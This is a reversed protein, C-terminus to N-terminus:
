PRPTLPGYAREYGDVNTAIAQAIQFIVSTPVKVRAVVEAPVVAGGEEDTGSMGAVAFDLTFDHATHWVAVVNAYVGQGIAEPVHLRIPTRQPEGDM